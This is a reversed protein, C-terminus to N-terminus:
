FCSRIIPGCHVKLVTIRESIKIGMQGTSTVAEDTGKKYYIGISTIILAYSMRSFYKTHQPNM